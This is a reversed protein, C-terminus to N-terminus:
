KRMFTAMEDLFPEGDSEEEEGESYDFTFGGTGVYPKNAKGSINSTKGVLSKVLVNLFKGEFLGNEMAQLTLMDKSINITPDTSTLLTRLQNSPVVVYGNNNFDTSACGIISHITFPNSFLAHVCHEIVFGFLEKELQHGLDEVKLNSQYVKIPTKYTSGAARIAPSLNFSLLNSSKHVLLITLILTHIENITLPATSPTDADTKQKKLHRSPAAAAERQAIFALSNFNRRSPENNTDFPALDNILDTIGRIDVLAERERDMMELLMLPNMFITWPAVNRFVLARSDFGNSRIRDIEFLNARDLTTTLIEDTISACDTNLSRLTSKYADSRLILTAVRMAETLATPATVLNPSRFFLLNVTM